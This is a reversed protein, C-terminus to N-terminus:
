LVWAGGGGSAPAVQIAGIDLYNPRTADAGIFTPFGTSKLGAGGGATSNLTFDGSAANTFASATLTIDGIGASVNNRAATTNNYYANHRNIYTDRDNTAQATSSTIGYAGNAEFINSDLRAPLLTCDYGDGANGYFVNRSVMVDNTSNYTTVVGNGGNTDFICGTITHALAGLDLGDGGNDHIYCGTFFWPGNTGAQTVGDGSCNKIEVDTLVWRLGQVGGSTANIGISFGDFLCREVTVQTCHAGSTLMGQAKVSATSSLSLNRLNTYTLGNCTLLVTSNTATTVLPKTDTNTRTRTTSYGVIWIRGSTADGDCGLTWTSTLTYTGAKVYVTNGAVAMPTTGVVGSGITLAGGVNLTLGSGGTVTNKDVTCNNTDAVATIFFRLTPDSSLYLANGIMASTFGGTASSITNTGGTNAADTVTLQAAAQQTYDTGAGAIGSDYGGGNTSVGDSRIEWVATSQTAM